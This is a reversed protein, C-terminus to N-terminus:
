ARHPLAAGFRYCAKWLTTTAILIFRGSAPVAECRNNGNPKTSLFTVKPALFPRRM